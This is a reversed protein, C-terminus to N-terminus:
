SVDTSNFKADAIRAEIARVLPSDVYANCKFCWASLDALSIAVNCKSGEHSGGEASTHAAMCGNVYRSCLVQWCFTCVWNERAPVSCFGCSSSLIMQCKEHIRKNLNDKTNNSGTTNTNASVIAELTAGDVQFLPESVSIGDDAFRAGAAAASSSSSSSSSATNGFQSDVGGSHPCTTIPEVAFYKPATADATAEPGTDLLGALLAGDRTDEADMADQIMRAFEEDSVMMTQAQQPQTPVVDTPPDAPPSASGKGKGKGKGEAM